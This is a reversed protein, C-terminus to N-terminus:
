VLLFSMPANPYTEKKKKNKKKKKLSFVYARIGIELQKNISYVNFFSSALHSFIAQKSIIQLNNQFNCMRSWIM